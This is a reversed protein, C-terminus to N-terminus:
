KEESCEPCPFNTVYRPTGHPVIGNVCGHACVYPAPYSSEEKHSSDLCNCGDEHKTIQLPNQSAGCTCLEELLEHSEDAIDILACMGCDCYPNPTPDDDHKFSECWDHCVVTRGVSGVLRKVAKELQEIRDASDSYAVWRGCSDEEMSDPFLGHPATSYRKM